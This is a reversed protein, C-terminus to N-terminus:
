EVHCAIYPDWIDLDGHDIVGWNILDNLKDVDYNDGMYYLQSGAIREIIQKIHKMLDFTNNFFIKLIMKLIIKLVKFIKM